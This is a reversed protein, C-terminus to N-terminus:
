QVELNFIIFILDHLWHAFPTSEQIFSVFAKIIL